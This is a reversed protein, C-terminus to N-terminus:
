VIKDIINQLDEMFVTKQLRGPKGISDELKRDFSINGLHKIKMKSVSNKIFGSGSIKMNEIVGIIPMNLEKLIVLLKSVASMSLKSSTTVVIFENKKIFRIIDLTEEGIGPPMDIILYDLKGWLTIALLEIIVNTIDEGRFPAPKDQTYYFISMFKIGEVKPPLVGKEAEPFGHKGLGLVIHCSPGYMDLDLLGVKYGKKTLGLALSSAVLSKGVGGKGSAVSIVRKVNDLRKKIVSTRPDM